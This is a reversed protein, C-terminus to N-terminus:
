MLQQHFSKKDFKFDIKGLLFKIFDNNFGM